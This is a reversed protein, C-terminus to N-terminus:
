GNDTHEYKDRVLFLPRQKVEMYLKGLYEGLIGLMLLQVGGMLFVPLVTSTWGPVPDDTLFRVYLAWLIGLLSAFSFAFGLFSALRLPRYSFSTIGDLALGFLAGPNFKSRGQERRGRSYDVTAYRDELQLFMARILRHREPLMNYIEVLGRSM